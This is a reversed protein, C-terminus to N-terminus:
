HHGTRGALAGLRRWYWRGRQPPRRQWNPRMLGTAWTDVMTRAGVYARYERLLAHPHCRPRHFATGRSQTPFSGFGAKEAYGTKLAMKDHFEMPGAELTEMKRVPFYLVVAKEGM